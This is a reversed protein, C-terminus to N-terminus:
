GDVRLCPVVDDIPESVFFILPDTVGRNQAETKVGAPDNGAAVVTKDTVSRLAVYRGKYEGSGCLVIEMEM